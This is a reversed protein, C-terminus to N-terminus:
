NGGAAAHLRDSYVPIRTFDDSSIQLLAEPLLDNMAKRLEHDWGNEALLALRELGHRMKEESYAAIKGIFIKPHNTKLLREDTTQLEEYLKEGPRIGTFVINIDDFPKLGSLTITEKALDLIRVPDGMDLM